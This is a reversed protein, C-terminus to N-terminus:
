EVIVLETRRDARAVGHIHGLELPRASGHDILRNGPNPPHIQPGKKKQSRKEVGVVGVIRGGGELLSVRGRRKVALYGIDILLNPTQDRKELFKTDVLIRDHDECAIMALAKALM